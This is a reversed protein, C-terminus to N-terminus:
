PLTVELTQTERYIEGARALAETLKYKNGTVWRFVEWHAPELEDNPVHVAVAYRAPTMTWREALKGDPLTVVQHITRALTRDRTERWDEEDRYAAGYGAAELADVM